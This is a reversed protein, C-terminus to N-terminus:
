LNARELGLIEQLVLQRREGIREFDMHPTYLSELYAHNDKAQKILTIAAALAEQYAAQLQALEAAFPDLKSSDLYNVTDIVRDGKVPVISHPESANCVAIRLQPILVHDIRKPDLACHYVEVEYGRKQAAQLAENVLTTRGTGAPGRVFVRKSMGELLSPLHHVLGQPTIASAFLHRERPRTEPSSLAAEPLLEEILEVTIRNLSGVNLAGLESIYAEQEDNLRRALDLYGYARRFLFGSKFVAPRVLDRKAKLAAEDWYASLDIVSEIAGPHKPDILHPATGDILAVGISPMRVGDLSTSDSSCYFEEMPYGRAVMQGALQRMFNSKGTGPGGKLVFTKVSDGSIVQEYFSFFGYGTNGGLFMKRVQAPM